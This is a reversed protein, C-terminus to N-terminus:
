RGIVDDSLVCDIFVISMADDDIDGLIVNDCRYDDDDEHDDDDGSDIDDDSDDDNNNGYFM